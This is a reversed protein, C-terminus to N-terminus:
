WDTVQKSVSLDQVQDLWALSQRVRTKVGLEIGAPTSLPPFGASPHTPSTDNAPIVRDNVGL